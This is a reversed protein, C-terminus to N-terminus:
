PTPGIHTICSWKTTGSGATIKMYGKSSVIALDGPRASDSLTTYTVPLLAWATGNWIWSGYNTGLEGTVWGRTFYATSAPSTLAAKTAAVVVSDSDTTASGIPIIRRQALSVVAKGSMYNVAITKGDGQILRLVTNVIRNFFESSLTDGRSINQPLNNMKSTPAPM